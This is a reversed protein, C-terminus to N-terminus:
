LISACGLAITGMFPVVMQELVGSALAGHEGLEFTIAYPSEDDHIMFNQIASIYEAASIILSCTCLM